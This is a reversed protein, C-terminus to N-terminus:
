MEYNVLSSIHFLINMFVRHTDNAITGEQCVNIHISINFPHTHWAEVGTKQKTRQEVTFFSACEADRRVAFFAV